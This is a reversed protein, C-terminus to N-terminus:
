MALPMTVRAPLIGGHGVGRLDDIVGQVAELLDELMHGLGVLAKYFLGSAPGHLVRDNEILLFDKSAM